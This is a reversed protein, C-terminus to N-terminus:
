ITASYVQQPTLSLYSLIRDSDHHYYVKLPHKISLPAALEPAFHFELCQQTSNIACLKAASFGFFHTIFPFLAKYISEKASFCLTLAYHLEFRSGHIINLENDDIIKSWLRDAKQPSLIDQCDIGIAGLQSSPALACAAFDDTHSISGSFGTPWQPCRKDDALVDFHDVGYHRLALAALYRGCFYEAKRKSSARSITDPLHIAAQSFFADDFLELKFSGSMLVAPNLRQDVPTICIFEALAKQATKSM